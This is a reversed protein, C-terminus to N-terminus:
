PCLLTNHDRYSQCYPVLDFGSVSRMGPYNEIIHASSVQGGINGGELVLVNLGARKGYISSALGSPGAGVVILDYM